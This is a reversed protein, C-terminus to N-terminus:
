KKFLNSFKDSLLGFKQKLIELSLLGKSTLVYIIVAGAGTAIAAILLYNTPKKEVVLLNNQG